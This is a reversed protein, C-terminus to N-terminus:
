IIFYDALEAMNNSGTDPSSTRCIMVIGSIGGEKLDDFLEEYHSRSAYIYWEDSYSGGEPTVSMCFYISDMGDYYWNYYDDLVASGVLLFPTGLYGYKDYQVDRNTPMDSGYEEQVAALKAGGFATRLDTLNATKDYIDGNCQMTGDDLFVCATRGNQYKAEGNAFDYEVPYIQSEFGEVDPSNAMFEMLDHFTTGAAEEGRTLIGPMADTLVGAEGSTTEAATGSFDFCYFTGSYLLRVRYYETSDGYVASCVWYGDSSYAEMEAEDSFSEPKPESSLIAAPGGSNCGTLVIFLLCICVVLAVASKKKMNKGGKGTQLLILMRNCFRGKCPPRGCM